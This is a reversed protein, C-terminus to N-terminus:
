EINLRILYKVNHESLYYQPTPEGRPTAHVEYFIHIWHRQSSNNLPFSLIVNRLTSLTVSLLRIFINVDCEIAFHVM